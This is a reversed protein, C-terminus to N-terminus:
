DALGLPVTATHWKDTMLLPPCRLLFPRSSSGDYAELRADPGIVVKGLNCGTYVPRVRAKWQASRGSTWKRAEEKKKNKRLTVKVGDVSVTLVVKKKKIAKAKFEYRIRRM